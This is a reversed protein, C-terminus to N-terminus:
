PQGRGPTAPGSEVLRQVAALPIQVWDPRHAQEYAVEYIAKDLQFATLLRDVAERDAPLLGSGDLRGLYADVFAESNRREWAEALVAPDRPPPPEAAAPRGPTRPARLRVSPLEIDGGGAGAHEGHERVGVAAAYAFSRVMGAVDRLPSSPARREPLPRSPEGEFDIVYWGDDTRMVQGLHYDGHVRIAVGADQVSRLTGIAGDIADADLEAHDVLRVREAIADAWVRSDGPATGFVDALALHLEATMVGLRESEPALDGGAESPDVGEDLLDRLSTLALAWGEVAGTLFRQLVALDDGNNRWVAVPDAIHSFGWESLALTVEIEPNAGSLRRFVKLILREDFVVSSNSQEASVLRASSAEHAPAIHRLLELALFPDALADYAFATGEPLVVIGVSASEGVTPLIAEEVPRLGLLLQYRASPPDSDSAGPEEPSRSVGAGAEVPTADGHTAEVVVRVLAPWPERLEEVALVRLEVDDRHKAGYWRQRVVHAALLPALDTGLEGLNM